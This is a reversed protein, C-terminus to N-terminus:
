QGELSPGAGLRMAIIAKVAESKTREYLAKLRRQGMRRDVALLIEALGWKDEQPRFQLLDADPTDTWKRLIATIPVCETSASYPDTCAEPFDRPFDWIIRDGITIYCRPILTSGRQSRMPYAICHIQFPVEMAVMADIRAQLKSWRTM